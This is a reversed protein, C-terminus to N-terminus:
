SKIRSLHSDYDGINSLSELFIAPHTNSGGFTTYKQLIRCPHSMIKSLGCLMSLGQDIRKHSREGTLDHIASTATREYLLYSKM